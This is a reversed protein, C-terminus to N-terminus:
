DFVEYRPKPLQNRAPHSAYIKELAFQRPKLQPEIKEVFHLFAKEADASDTHCTMAIHRRSSEEDLAASLEGWDLLWHELDAASKCQAARSELQDFLPAIKPWDGLDLKEPVFRRPRHPPLQGFPLLNM